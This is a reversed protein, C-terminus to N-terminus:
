LAEKDFNNFTLITNYLTLRDIDTEPIMVFKFELALM